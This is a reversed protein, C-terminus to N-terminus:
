TIPHCLYLKRRTSNILFFLLKLKPLTQNLPATLIQQEGRLGFVGNYTWTLTRTFRCCCCLHNGRSSM